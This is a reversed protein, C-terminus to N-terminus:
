LGLKSESAPLTATFYDVARQWASRRPYNYLSIVLAVAGLRVVDSQTGGFFAVVLALVGIVEAIAAAIITANLLHKILGDVGRTTAVIELRMRHLQARRVVISGIALAAAAAYFAYPLEAQWGAGRTKLILVGVGAYVVISLTFATVLVVATRHAAAVRDGAKEPKATM